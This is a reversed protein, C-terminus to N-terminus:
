AGLYASQVQQNQLLEKATASIVIKGSEIVYGRSAVSLAMNANQEILLIATGQAHIRAIIDFITEVLKPALGLSPEDLLLLTPLSMLARGIALMQQEGGSLTGGPQNKRESLISFYSFVLDLNEKIEHPSRTFAGMELNELVTLQPFIKRGEPALSIGNKVVLHAPMRTIDRDNFTIKGQQSKLLGAITKLVTTKGAGNAGILTVIEGKSVDISVGKLAVIKGYATYLNEVKLM